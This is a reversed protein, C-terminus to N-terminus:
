YRNFIFLKQGLALKCKLKSTAIIKLYKEFLELSQTDNHFIRMNVIFNLKLLTSTMYKPNARKTPLIVM